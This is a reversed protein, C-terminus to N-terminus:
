SQTAGNESYNVIKELLDFRKMRYYMSHLPIGLSESALRACGGHTQLAQVLVAREFALLRQKLGTVGLPVDDMDGCPSGLGIVHRQAFAHLERVNGPWPKSLLEDCEEVSLAPVDLRFQLAVEELFHRYLPIIDELREALCPIRVQSVSLRFHLDERFKHQRVLDPLSAKTSAIVRFSSKYFSNGGLRTAGRYQLANLLKAQCSLPLSDMEDLYLTGNNALELKGPRDKQAGTFAGAMVGFLEAEFLQEPLAACNVHIFDGNVGSQAHLWRAATDKGAGTPGILVTDVPLQKLLQLQSVAYQMPQSRIFEAAYPGLQDNAPVKVGFQLPKTKTLKELIHVAALPDAPRVISAFIPIDHYVYDQWPKDIFRIIQSDPKRGLQKFRQILGGLQELGHDVLVWHAPLNRKALLEDLSLEHVSAQMLMAAARLRSKLEQSEICLTLETM